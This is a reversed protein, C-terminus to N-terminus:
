NNIWIQYIRHGEVEIMIERGKRISDFSVQREKWMGPSVQYHRAIKVNEPMLTYKIGNVEIHRYKEVWPSKTVLGTVWINQAFVAGSLTVFLLATLTCILTLKINTKM